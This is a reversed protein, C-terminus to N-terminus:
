RYDRECSSMQGHPSCRRPPDEGNAARDGAPAVGDGFNGADESLDLMTIIKSFSSKATSLRRLYLLFVSFKRAPSQFLHVGVRMWLFSAALIPAIRWPENAIQYIPIKTARKL